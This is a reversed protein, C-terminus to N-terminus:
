SSVGEASGQMMLALKQLDEQRGYRMAGGQVGSRVNRFMVNADVVLVLRELAEPNLRM